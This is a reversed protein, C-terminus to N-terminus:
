SSRTWAPCTCPFSTSGSAPPPSGASWSPCCRTTTSGARHARRPPEARARHPDARAHDHPGRRYPGPRGPAGAPAPRRHGAQARGPHRPRHGPRRRDRQDRRRPRRGGRPVAHDAARDLRGRRGPTRRGVDGRAQGPRPALRVSAAAHPNRRGRRDRGSRAGGARAIRHAQMVQRFGSGRRADGGHRGAVHEIVRRLTAHQLVHQGADALSAGDVLDAKTALAAGIAIESRGLFHRPEEGPMRVGDRAGQLDDLAAREIQAFQTILIRGLDLVRGERRLLGQLLQGPFAGRSAIRVPHRLIDGRLEAVFERQDGLKSYAGYKRVTLLMTRKARLM